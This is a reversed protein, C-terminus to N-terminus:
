TPPGPPRNMLARIQNITVASLQGSWRPRRSNATITCATAPTNKTQRCPLAPGQGRENGELLRVPVERGQQQDGPRDEVTDPAAHWISTM